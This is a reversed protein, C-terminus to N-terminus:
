KAKVFVIFIPVDAQGCSMLNKRVGATIVWGQINSPAETKQSTWLNM